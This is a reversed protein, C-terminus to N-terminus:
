AKKKNKVVGGLVMIITFIILYFAVGWKHAYFTAFIMFLSGLIALVPMIFRKIFSLDKEFMMRLFIPLYLAYITVLPIESSDFGFWNVTLMGTEANPTGILQILANATAADYEAVFINGLNACFFYFLWAATVLLSFIASNTPMNTSPDVQKFTGPKLGQDRAALAYIGRTCGLMLGNLTGLCSIAIFVNLITGFVGGFINHFAITAGNERLSDITAGGAIGIYYTIYIIAIIATGLILARPLNKKADKIEANISTALIWGEYAFVTAVSAGFLAGWNGSGGSAFNTILLPASATEPTVVLGYITGVVAMLCLPVLKIVTASVQFKGALVPSLANMCYSLCLYFGALAMCTGTTPDMQGFIVLTYRASVWALVSTMAPYYITILFWGIYYAYNKGCTAEAYDVLGNVKEYKTAMTAFCYACVMMVFGGLLWAVIGVLMNGETLNLINQAKFFVGSGIVIGIVMAIATPLGYKKTLENAM